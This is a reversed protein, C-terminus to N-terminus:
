DGAPAPEEGDLIDVVGGDGAVLRGEELVGYRPNVTVGLDDRVELVLRGGAEQAAEAAERELDPRLEEFSPQVVGEVFGVIVGSGGEPVPLTFGTNPAAAQIRDALVGPLQDPPRSELAPLTLAGAYQAAVASYSAPDATLQSLVAAATPEDPVTIYGFSFEALGGRVEDYRARLEAETPPQVEGEALAVEERVLQQRVNEVVDARGIGQQALQGFVSDPDDGGLLQEIRRRVDGDDVRVGFREAAAVYVEEQVLLSLVRRTFEEGQAGAYAAVDPDELRDDVASELEAVTIRADGVYAAVSPDTRCASLGSVTVTLLFGSVLVRPVRRKLM